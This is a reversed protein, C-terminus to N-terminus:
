TGDLGCVPCVLSTGVESSGIEDAPRDPDEIWVWGLSGYLCTAPDGPYGPHVQRRGDYGHGQQTAAWTALLREVDRVANANRTLVSRSSPSEPDKRAHTMMGLTMRYVYTPKLLDNLLEETNM